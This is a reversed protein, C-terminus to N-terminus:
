FQSNFHIEASGFTDEKSVSKEEYEDESDEKKVSEYCYLANWEEENGAFYVDTLFNGYFAYKSVKTVTKGFYVETLHTDTYINGGSVQVTNQFVYPKLETIEAKIVAKELGPCYAFARVDLETVSLPITVEKLYDCGGFAAFGITTVSEPIQIQTLGCYTFANAGIVEVGEPITVTRLATCRFFASEGIE